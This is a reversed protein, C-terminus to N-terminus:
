KTMHQDVPVLINTLVNLKNSKSIVAVTVSKNVTTKIKNKIVNDTIMYNSLVFKGANINFKSLAKLEPAIDHQLEKLKAV